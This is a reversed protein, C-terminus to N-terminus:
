ITDSKAPQYITRIRQLADRAWDARMRATESGIKARYDSRLIEYIASRVQAANTSDAGAAPVARLVICNSDTVCSEVTLTLPLLVLVTDAAVVASARAAASDAADSIIVAQLSDRQTQPSAWAACAVLMVASFILIRKM